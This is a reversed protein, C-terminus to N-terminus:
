CLELGLVSLYESSFKVSANSCGYYFKSLRSTWM